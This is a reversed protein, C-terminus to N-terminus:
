ATLRIVFPDQAPHRGAAGISIRAPPVVHGDALFGFGLAPASQTAFDFGDTGGYNNFRFRISHKGAGVTVFDNKELRVAHVGVFTGRTVIEGSFVRDHVSNHTVRVHWGHPDHWVTVGPDRPPRGDPTTTA